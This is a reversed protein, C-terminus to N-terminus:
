MLGALLDVIIIIAVAGLILDLPKKSGLWDVIATWCRALWAGASDRPPNRDRIRGSNSM